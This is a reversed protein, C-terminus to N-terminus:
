DDDEKDEPGVKWFSSIKKKDNAKFIRASEEKGVSADLIRKAALMTAGTIVAETAKKAAAKPASKLGEKIGDRTDKLYQKGAVRADKLYQKGLDHAKSGAKKAGAITSKGVRSIVDNVAKPNKAYLAAAAAVTAGMVIAAAVRKATKHSRVSNSTGGGDPSDGYRKKGAPTLSGDKNQYRRVGWRMGKVGHHQLEFTRGNVIYNVSEM